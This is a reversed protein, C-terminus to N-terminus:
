GKIRRDRASLGNRADIPAIAKISRCRPNLITRPPICRRSNRPATMTVKATPCAGDTNACRVPFTAGPRITTTSRMEVNTPIAERQTAACRWCFEALSPLRGFVCKLGGEEKIKCWVLKGLLSFRIRESSVSTRRWARFCGAALGLAMTRAIRGADSAQPLRCSFPVFRRAKSRDRPSAPPPTRGKMGILGAFGLVFFSLLFASRRCVRLGVIRAEARRASIAAREGTPTGCPIDALLNVLLVDVTNESVFFFWILISAWVLAAFIILTEKPSFYNM